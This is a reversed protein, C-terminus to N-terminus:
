MKKELIHHKMAVTPHKLFASGPNNVEAALFISAAVEEALWRKNFGKMINSIGLYFVTLPIFTVM